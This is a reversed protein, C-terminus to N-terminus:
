NQNVLPDIKTRARQVKALIDEATATWVRLEGSATLTWAQNPQSNCDYINVATRPAQNNGVVDLCRGYAKSVITAETAASAPTPAGLGLGLSVAAALLLVSSRRCASHPVTRSSM